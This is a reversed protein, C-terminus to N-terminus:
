LLEMELSSLTRVYEDNLFYIDWEASDNTEIHSNGSYTQGYISIWIGRMYYKEPNVELVLYEGMTDEWVQGPKFDQPAKM